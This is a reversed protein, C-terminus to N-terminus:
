VQEAQLFAAIYIVSRPALQASTCVPRTLHSQIIRVGVHMAPGRKNLRLSGQWYLYM